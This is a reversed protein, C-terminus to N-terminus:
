EADVPAHEEDGRSRGRSSRRSRKKKKKAGRRRSRVPVMDVVVGLDLPASGPEAGDGNDDMGAAEGHDRRATATAAAAAAGASSGGESAGSGHGPSPARPTSSGVIAKAPSRRPSRGQRRPTSHMSQTSRLSRTSTPTGMHRSFKSIIRLSLGVGKLSRRRATAPSAPSAPTSANVPAPSSSVDRPASHGGAAADAPQVRRPQGTNGGRGNNGASGAVPGSSARPSGSSRAAATGAVPSAAARPSGPFAASAPSLATTPSAGAPLSPPAGNQARRSPSMAPPPAAATADVPAAATTPVVAAPVASKGAGKGASKAHRPPAGAGADGEAPPRTSEADDDTMSSAGSASAPRPTFSAGLMPNSHQFTGSDGDGGDVSSAVSGVFDTYVDGPQRHTAVPAGRQRRTNRRAGGRGRARGRGGRSAVSARYTNLADLPSPVAGSPVSSVGSTVSSAGSGSSGSASSGSSSSSSDSDSDSDSGSASTDSDGVASSAVSSGDTMTSAGGDSDSSSSGSDSSDSGDSGAPLIQQAADDVLPSTNAAAIVSAGVVTSPAGTAAVVAAREGAGGGDADVAGASGVAASAPTPATVAPAPSPADPVAHRAAAPLGSDSASDGAPEYPVLGVVITDQPATTADGQEAITDPVGRRRSARSARSGGSGSRSREGSVSSGATSLNHNSGTLAPSTASAGARMTYEDRAANPATIFQLSRRREVGAGLPRRTPPSAVARQARSALNRESQAFKKLSPRTRPTGYLRGGSHTRGITATPLSHASASGTIRAMSRANQQRLLVAQRAEDRRKRFARQIFTSALIEDLRTIGIRRSKADDDTVSVDDDLEGARKKRKLVARSLTRHLAKPHTGIRQM